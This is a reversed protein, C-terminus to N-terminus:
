KGPSKGKGRLERIYGLEAAAKDDKPNAKLCERYREEAKDLQGMEVFVYGQGRRAHGLDDQKNEPSSFSNAAEEAKQFLDLSKPWNKEVQYIYGLESLYQSNNPSFAM